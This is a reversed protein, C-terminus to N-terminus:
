NKNRGVKVMEGFFCKFTEKEINELLTELNTKPLVEIASNVLETASRFMKYALEYLHWNFLHVIKINNMMDLYMSHVCWNCWYYSSVYIDAVYKDHLLEVRRKLDQNTWHKPMVVKGKETKGWLRVRLAEINGDSNEQKSLCEDEQTTENTTSLQFQKRINIISKASRWKEVNPFTFYKEPGDTIRGQAILNLDVYSELISRVSAALTLCNEPGDLKIMSLIWLCIRGYINLIATRSTHGDKMGKLKEILQGKVCDSLRKLQEYNILALNAPPINKYDANMAAITCEHAIRLNQIVTYIEAKASTRLISQSDTYQTKIEVLKGYDPYNDPMLPLIEDITEIIWTAIDLPLTSDPTTTASLRRLLDKGQAMYRSTLESIKKIADYDPTKV